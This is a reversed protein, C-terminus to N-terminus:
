LFAVLLGLVSVLVLLVFLRALSTPSLLITFTVNPFFDIISNNLAKHDMQLFKSKVRCVFSFGQLTRLLSIVCISQWISGVWNRCPPNMAPSCLGWKRGGCLQLTHHHQEKQFFALLSLYRWM